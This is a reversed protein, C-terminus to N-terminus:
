TMEEHVHINLTKNSNSELSLLQMMIITIILQDTTM